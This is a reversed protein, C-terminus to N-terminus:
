KHCSAVIIATSGGEGFLIKDTDNIYCKKIKAGGIQNSHDMMNISAIM